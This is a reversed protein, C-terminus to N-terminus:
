KQELRMVFFLQLFNQQDISAFVTSHKLLYVIDLLDLPEHKVVIELIELSAPLVSMPWYNHSLEQNEPKCTQTM